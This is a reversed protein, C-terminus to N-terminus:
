SDHYKLIRLPEQHNSSGKALLLNVLKEDLDRESNQKSFNNKDQKTM